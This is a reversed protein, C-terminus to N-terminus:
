HPGGHGGGCCSGPVCSQPREGRGCCLPEAAPAASSVTHASLIRVPAPGGCRECATPAGGLIVEMVHGCAACEYEYIPM